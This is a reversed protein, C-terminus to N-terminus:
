VKDSRFDVVEDFMHTGYNSVDVNVMFASPSNPQPDYQFSFSDHVSM